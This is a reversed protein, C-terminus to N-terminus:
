NFWYIYFSFCKGVVEDILKKNTSSGSGRRSSARSNNVSLSKGKEINNLNNIVLQKQAQKQQMMAKAVIAKFTPKLMPSTIPNPAIFSPTRSTGNPSPARKISKPRLKNIKSKLSLNNATNAAITTTPPAKPLPNTQSPEDNAVFKPRRRMCNCIVCMGFALFFM